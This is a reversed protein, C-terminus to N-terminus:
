PIGGVRYNDNRGPVEDSFEELLLESIFVRPSEPDGPLEYHRAKLKKDKFIYEGKPVYGASVFPRELVDIGVRPDNFTRFAVHDNVIWEGSNQFLNYIKGASPNENSYQEWLKQFIDQAKM